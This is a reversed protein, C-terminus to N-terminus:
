DTAAVRDGYAGGIHINIKAGPTRPMGMIDFIEGHIRLDTICNQVVHEKESTLVNFQGPHMSLRQGADRAMKGATQLNIKIAEFDPLDELRYESAWPFLCSTVRFVKVGHNNNWNVYQILDSTNELALQSAYEIGKAAFTRKIMSRSCFVKPKQSQLTMNLCAYGFQTTM